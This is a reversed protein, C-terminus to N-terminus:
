GGGNSTSSKCASAPYKWCGPHNFCRILLSKGPPPQYSIAGVHNYRLTSHKCTAPLAYIPAFSPLVFAEGSVRERVSAELVLARVWLRLWSKTQPASKWKKQWFFTSSRKLQRRGWLGDFYIELDLGGLLVTRFISGREPQPHVELGPTCKCM